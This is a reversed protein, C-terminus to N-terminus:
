YNTSSINFNVGKSPKYSPNTLDPYVPIQTPKCDAPHPALTVKVMSSM